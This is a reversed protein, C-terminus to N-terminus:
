PPRAIYNKINNSHQKFKKKIKFFINEERKISNGVNLFLIKHVFMEPTLHNSFCFHGESTLHSTTEGFLLYPSHSYIHLIDEIGKNQNQIEFTPTYNKERM